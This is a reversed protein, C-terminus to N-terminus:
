LSYGQQRLVSHGQVTPQRKWCPGVGPLIRVSILTSWHPHGRKCMPHGCGNGYGHYCFVVRCKSEPRCLQKLISEKMQDTQPAHFQAFLRNEPIFPGEEPDYQREKLIEEFLKYAKGCWLLPLYVVTLPLNTGQELLAEAIPQIINAIDNGDRFVKAYYVNSRDLKGTVLRPNRLYLTCKIAERDSKTTTATLAAVPANPFLTAM